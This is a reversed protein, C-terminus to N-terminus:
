SQKNDIRVQVKTEAERKGKKAKLIFQVEIQPINDIEMASRYKVVAKFGADVFLLPRRTM